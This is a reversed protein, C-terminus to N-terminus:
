KRKKHRRLAATARENRDVKWLLKPKGDILKARFAISHVLNCDCCALEMRKPVLQWGDGVDTYLSSKM